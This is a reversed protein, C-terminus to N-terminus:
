RVRVVVSGSYGPEYPFLAEWSGLTHPRGSFRVAGAGRISGSSAQITGGALSSLADTVRVSVRRGSVPVRDIVPLAAEKRMSGGFV